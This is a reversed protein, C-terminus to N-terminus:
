GDDDPSVREWVTEARPRVGAISPRLTSYYRYDSGYLINILRPRVAWKSNRERQPIVAPSYGRRRQRVASCSYVPM